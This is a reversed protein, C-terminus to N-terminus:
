KQKFCAESCFFKGNSSLAEATTVYTDCVECAVMTEEDTSTKKARREETLPMKKKIFFFYVAGIVGIVLLLKLLM